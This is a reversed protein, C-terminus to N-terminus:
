EYNEGEGGILFPNMVYCGAIESYQIINNEKLETIEKCVEIKLPNGINDVLYNSQPEICPMLKLLMRLSSDSLKDIYTDFFDSNIKVGKSYLIRIYDTNNERIIFSM